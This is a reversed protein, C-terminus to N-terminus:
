PHLTAWHKTAKITELLIDFAKKSQNLYAQSGVAARERVHVLNREERLWQLDDALSSDIIAFDKAVRVLWWFSQRRLTTDITAPRWRLPKSRTDPDRWEHADGSTHGAKLAHKICHSLLAEAISAYDVIQARIHAAREENAVLLALGLKYMWRSGYFVQSLTLRLKPDTVYSFTDKQLSDLTPLDRRAFESFIEIVQDGFQEQIPKTM